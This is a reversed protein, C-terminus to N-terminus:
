WAVTVSKKNCKKGSLILIDAIKKVNSISDYNFLQVYCIYYYKQEFTSVQHSTAIRWLGYAYM